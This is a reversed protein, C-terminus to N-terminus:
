PHGDPPLHAISALAHLSYGRRDKSLHTIACGQPGSQLLDPALHLILPDGFLNRLLDVTVGGHTVVAVSAGPYRVAVDDLFAHLRAGALRSSDGSRPTFDRDRTAREWEALFDALTEPSPHDGWEMRERLRADNQLPLDLATALFAATERTRRRPSCFLHSIGTDRLALATEQAQWRGRDTLPPDGSGSEKEGHEILYFVSTSTAMM